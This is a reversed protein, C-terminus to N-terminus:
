SPLFSKLHSDHPLAKENAGLKFLCQMEICLVSLFWLHSEQPLDNEKDSVKFDWM